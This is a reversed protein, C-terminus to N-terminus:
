HSKNESYIRLLSEQTKMDFASIIVNIVVSIVTIIILVNNLINSKRQQEVKNLDLVMALVIILVAQFVQLSISIIVLTLLLHYFEHATGVTLLFKLQSANATLLALDLMGQAFSKRTAYSNLDLAGITQIIQGLSVDVQTSIKRDTTREENQNIENCSESSDMRGTLKTRANSSM